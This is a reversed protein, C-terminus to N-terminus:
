VTLRSIQSFSAYLKMIVPFQYNPEINHGELSSIIFRIIMRFVRRCIYNRIVSSKLKNSDQVFGHSPYSRIVYQLSELFQVDTVKLHIERKSAKQVIVAKMGVDPEESYPISM